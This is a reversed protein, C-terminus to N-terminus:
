FVHVILADDHMYHLSYTIYIMFRNVTNVICSASYSKLNSPVDCVLISMLDKKNMYSGEYPREMGFISYKDLNM